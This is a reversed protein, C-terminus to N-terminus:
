VLIVCVELSVELERMRPTTRNGIRNYSVGVTRYGDLTSPAYNSSWSLSLVLVRRLALEYCRVLEGSWTRYLLTGHVENVSAHRMRVVGVVDPFVIIERAGRRARSGDSVERAGQM